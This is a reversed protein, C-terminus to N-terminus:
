TGCYTKFNDMDPVYKYKEQYDAHAFPESLAILLEDFETFDGDKEAFKLARDVWFNRPIIAPNKSKMYNKIETKSRGDADLRTKWVKKWMLFRESNYMEGEYNGFTLDLFINTYDPKNEGLIELFEEILEFDVDKFDEIGLKQALEGYYYKKYIDEFKMLEMNLLKLAKEETDSVLPILTEGLRGLNWMAIKPQNGYAYRGYRDISSFVSELDYKDMFACPGYDISEGSITMNDTNMVGHIFGIAQWKAILEAQVQIVKKFLELYPNELAELEPFHRNITYDAFIKLKEADQLHAAYQFSGVRIHSSAVRTLIAGPLLAERVVNEGTTVVALSRSSPINLAHMAESILYERLMPGLVARGDGGRSFPTRGSGKLQIDCRNGEPSIQEGILIARGDGLMALSGFQHGLYAMAIFSAGSPFVNGSFVETGYEKLSNVDLGLEVALKENLYILKPDKVPNLKIKRYFNSPLKEYTNEFNWNIEKMNDGTGNIGMIYLLFLQYFYSDVM